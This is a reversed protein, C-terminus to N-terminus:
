NIPCRLVDACRIQFFFRFMGEINKCALLPVFPRVSSFQYILEYSSTKCTHLFIPGLPGFKQVM